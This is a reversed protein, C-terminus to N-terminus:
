LRPDLNVGGDKCKTYFELAGYLNGHDTIACSNMGLEKVKKVLDPIKSAGDLLSYHTHCHLHAFPRVPAAEAAPTALDSMSDTRAPLLRFLALHNAGSHFRSQVLDSRCRPGVRVTKVPHRLPRPHRPNPSISPPRVADRGQPSKFGTWPCGAPLASPCRGKGAPPRATSLHRFSHTDLRPFRTSAGEGVRIAFGATRPTPSDEVPTGCLVSTRQNGRNRVPTSEPPAPRPGKVGPQRPVIPKLVPTTGALVRNSFLRNM